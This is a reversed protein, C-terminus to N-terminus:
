RAFLNIPLDLLQRISAIEGASLLKGTDLQGADFLYQWRKIEEPSFLRAGCSNCIGITAEPVTFPIGRVKTEFDKVRQFEIIGKGCNACRNETMIQRRM